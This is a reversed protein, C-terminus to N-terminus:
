QRGYILAAPQHPGKKLHRLLQLGELQPPTWQGPAELVLRADEARASRLLVALAALLAAPKGGEWVEYPPDVFILGYESGAVAARGGSVASGTPFGSDAASECAAALRRVTQVADAQRIDLLAADFGASKAVAAANQRICRVAVANQEVLTASHAGRSMAELAYAGTGAFCDLVRAGETVGGLSAFVAERLYDTAPRTQGKSPSQLNIGRAKGGTIRM